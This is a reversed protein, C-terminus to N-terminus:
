ILGIPRIPSIRSTKRQGAGYFVGRLTWYNSYFDLFSYATCAMTGRFSCWVTAKQRTVPQSLLQKLEPACLENGILPCGLEYWDCYNPEAEEKLVLQEAFDPKNLM